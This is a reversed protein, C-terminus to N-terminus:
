WRGIALEVHALITFAYYLHLTAFLSRFRGSSLSMYSVIVIIDYGHIQSQTLLDSLGTTGPCTCHSNQNKITRKLLAYAIHMVIGFVLPMVNHIVMWVINNVRPAHAALTVTSPRDNQGDTRGDTVVNEAM